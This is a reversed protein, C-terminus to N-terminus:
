TDKGQKDLAQLRPSNGARSIKTDTVTTIAPRVTSYLIIRRAGPCHCSLFRTLKTWKTIEFKESYAGSSVDNAWSQEWTRQRGVLQDDCGSVIIAREERTYSNYWSLGAIM